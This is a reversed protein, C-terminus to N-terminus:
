VLVGSGDCNRRIKSVGATDDFSKLISSKKSQTGRRAASIRRRSFATFRPAGLISTSCQHTTLPSELNQTEVKKHPNKAKKTAPETAFHHTLIAIHLITTKDNAKELDNRISLLDPARKLITEALSMSREDHLTAVEHLITTGINNVQTMKHYLETPLQDELLSLALDVQKSYIALHLVTDNHITLRHMARDESGGCLEKVKNANQNLLARYLEANLVDRDM